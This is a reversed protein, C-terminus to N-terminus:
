GSVIASIQHGISPEARLTRRRHSFFRAEDALTDIGLATATIGARSLRALCYGALDFQLRDGGRGPAFHAGAWPSAQLVADHLDPGVEYSDQGICPGVVAVIDARAAGLAIMAAITAELVGLAAGRWGAHAAGATGTRPDHFLVPGCDATIVSLALGPVRSVLGDARAGSGAPWPATVTVIEASHIQTLGLLNAADVGLARAVLARNAALNEPADGSSLSCNLSAYHGASVGGNRTFFGHRAALAPSTLFQATM